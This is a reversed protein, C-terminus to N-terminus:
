IIVQLVSRIDFDTIQEIVIAMRRLLISGAHGTKEIRDERTYNKKMDDNKLAWEERSWKGTTGMKRWIMMIKHGIEVIGDEWLAWKRIMRIHEIMEIGDEWPAWKRIM